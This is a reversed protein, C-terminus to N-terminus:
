ILGEPVFTKWRLSVFLVRAAFVSGGNLATLFGFLCHPSLRLRRVSGSSIPLLLPRNFYTSSAPRSHPGSITGRGSLILRGYKPLSAATPTPLQPSPIGSLPLTSPCGRVWIMRGGDRRGRSDLCVFLRLFGARERKRQGRDRESGMQVGRTDWEEESDEWQPCSSM